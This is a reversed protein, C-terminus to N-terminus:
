GRRGTTSIAGARSRRTLAADLERRFSFELKTFINRLHWEVTRASLFLEAGIEPRDLTQDGSSACRLEVVHHGLQAGLAGAGLGEGLGGGAVGLTSEGNEIVAVPPAPLQVPYRQAVQLPGTVVAFGLTDVVCHNGVGLVPSHPQLLIDLVDVGIAVHDILALYIPVGFTVGVGLRGLPQAMGVGDCLAWHECGLPVAQVGLSGTQLDALHVLAVGFPVRPVAGTLAVGRGGIEVAIGALFVALGRAQPGFGFLGLGLFALPADHDGEVLETGGRGPNAALPNGREQGAKGL